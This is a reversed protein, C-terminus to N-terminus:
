IDVDWMHHTYVPGFFSNCGVIPRLLSPPMYQSQRVHNNYNIARQHMYMTVYMYRRICISWFTMMYPSMYVWLYAYMRAYTRGMINAHSTPPCLCVPVCTGLWCRLQLYCRTSHLSTHHTATYSLEAKSTRKQLSTSQLQRLHRLDPHLCFWFM